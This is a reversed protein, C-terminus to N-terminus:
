SMQIVIGIKNEDVANAYQEAEQRDSFHREATIYSDFTGIMIVIVKYYTRM